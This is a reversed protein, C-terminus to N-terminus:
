LSVEVSRELVSAPGCELSSPFVVIRLGITLSTPRTGPRPHGIAQIRSVSQNGPVILTFPASPCV